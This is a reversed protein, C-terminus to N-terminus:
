PFGRLAELTADLDVIDFDDLDVATIEHRESLSRILASGLLGAAGTVLVRM